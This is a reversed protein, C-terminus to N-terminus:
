WIRIARGAAPADPARDSKGDVLFLALLENLFRQGRETPRVHTADREILGQKEGEELGAQIAGFGLGTRESFLRLAFGDVLRLANLMFEFPLEEPALERQVSITEKMGLYERPQKSALGALEPGVDGGEGKVKHCRLCSLEAKQYFVQSGAEADGGTLCERYAALPDDKKRAADYKAM